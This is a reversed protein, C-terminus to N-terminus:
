DQKFRKEYLKDFDSQKLNDIKTWNSKTQKGLKFKNLIKEDTFVYAKITKKKNMFVKALRHHGDLIMHEGLPTRITIIPYKLNAKIINKYDRQYKKPDALVDMISWREGNFSGWNKWQMHQKLHSISIDYIPENHSNVYKHMLYVSYINEGNAYTQKFM